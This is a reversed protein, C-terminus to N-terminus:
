KIYVFLEYFLAFKCLPSVIFFSSIRALTRAAKASLAFAASVFLVAGDAFDLM